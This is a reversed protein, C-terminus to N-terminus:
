GTSRRVNQPHIPTRLPGFSHNEAGAELGREVLEVSVKVVLHEVHRPHSERLPLVSVALDNESPM